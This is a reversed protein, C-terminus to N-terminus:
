DGCANLRSPLSPRRRRQVHTRKRVSGAKCNYQYHDFGGYNFCKMTAPDRTPRPPERKMMKTALFTASPPTSLTYEQQRVNLIFTTLRRTYDEFSMGLLRAPNQNIEWKRWLLHYEPTVAM